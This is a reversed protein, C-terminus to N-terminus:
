RDCAQGQENSIVDCRDGRRFARPTQGTDEKFARNFPGISGFGCSMAIDLISTNRHAPDVLLRKAMDVRYSNLCRNFNAFGLGTTIAQTVKYDPEGLIQALDGIKLNPTTFVDEASLTRGVKLALRDLGAGAVPESKRAKRQATVPHRQRYRVAAIGGALAAMAMLVRVTEAERAFFSGAPANDVIIVAFLLLCLYGIIFTVRFRGEARSMALGIGRWAEFLSMLLVTSSMMGTVQRFAGSWAWGDPLFQGGFGSLSLLAVLAFPWREGARAPDFLSRSLLWSWGCGAVCLFGFVPLLPGLRDGYVASFIFSGIAVAFFAAVVNLQCLPKRRLQDVVFWLALTVTATSTLVFLNMAGFTM